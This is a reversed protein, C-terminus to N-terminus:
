ENDGGSFLGEISSEIKKVEQNVMHQEQETMPARGRRGVLLVGKPKGKYYIPAAYAHLLGEALMIPYELVKGTIGEPFHSIIIPSGTSIVKGAIGKGYRVTIRKYKENRNGAAHHWQVDPSLRNQLAIGAFDADLKALIAQCVKEMEASRNM